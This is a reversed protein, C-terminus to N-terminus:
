PLSATDCIIVKPVIAAFATTRSTALTCPLGYPSASACAQKHELQSLQYLLQKSDQFIIREDLSNEIISGLKSMTQDFNELNVQDSYFSHVIRDDVGVFQKIEDEPISLGFEKLHIQWAYAYLRETDMITGDCDWLIGLM